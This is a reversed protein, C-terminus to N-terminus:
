KVSAKSVIDASSMSYMVTGNMIYYKGEPLQFVTEARETREEENLNEIDQKDKKRLEKLQKFYQYTLQEQAYYMDYTHQYPNEKEM